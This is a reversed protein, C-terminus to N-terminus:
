EISYSAQQGSGRNKRLYVTSGEVAVQQCDNELIQGGWRLDWCFMGDQWNWSGTLDRGSATGSIGGDPGLVFRQLPRSLTKGGVAQVFAERDSILTQANSLAPACAVAVIALIRYM